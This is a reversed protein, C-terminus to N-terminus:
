THRIDPRNELAQGSMHIIVSYKHKNILKGSGFAWTLNESWFKDHM